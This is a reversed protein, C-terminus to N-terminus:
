FKRNSSKEDIWQHSFKIVSIEKDEVLPLNKYFETFNKSIMDDDGLIQFWEEQVNELIREWQLALNQGGINKKYDFYHYDSSKFYKQIIPLPDNPSADNGIYLTFNKNSQKAVSKITEEFFDIKYYPIIIALKHQIDQLM